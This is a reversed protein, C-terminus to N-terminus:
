DSPPHFFPFIFRSPVKITDLWSFSALTIFLFIARMAWKTLPDSRAAINSQDPGSANPTVSKIGAM